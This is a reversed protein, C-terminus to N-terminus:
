RHQKHESQWAVRPEPKADPQQEAQDDIEEVAHVVAPHSVFRGLPALSIVRKQVAPVIKAAVGEIVGAVNIRRPGIDPEPGNESDVCPVSVDRVSGNALITCAAESESTHTPLDASIISCKSL